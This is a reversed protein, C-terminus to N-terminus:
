GTPGPCARAARGQRRAAHSQGRPEHDHRWARRVRGGAASRGGADFLRQADHRGGRPLRSARAGTHRPRSRPLGLASRGRPARADRARGPRPRSCGPPTSGADRGAGLGMARRFLRPGRRPHGARSCGPRAGSTSRATCTPAGCRRLPLPGFALRRRVPQGRVRDRGRSPWRRAASCSSSGTAPSPRSWAPRPCGGGRAQLSALHGGPEPRDRCTLLRPDASGDNAAAQRLRLHLVPLEERLDGALVIVTSATLTEEITARPLSAVLEAPLGDGLQADFNDSGIVGKVLRVWAYADENALRSGGIVGVAAPGPRSRRSSGTRSRM